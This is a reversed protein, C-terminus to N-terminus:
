YAISIFVSKEFSSSSCGVFQFYAWGLQWLFIFWFCLSIYRLSTLIPIVCNLFFLVSALCCLFPVSTWKQHFHLTTWVGHFASWLNSLSSLGSSGDSVAIVGSPYVCLFIFGETWFVCACLRDQRCEKCHCVYSILGPVWWYHILFPFHPVYMGCFVLCGYFFFFLSIMDKAAVHFSSSAM